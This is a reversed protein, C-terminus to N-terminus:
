YKIRGYDNEILHNLRKPMSDYLSEVIKPEINKAEDKIVKFLEQGNNVCQIRLKADVRKQLIGWLNEIPSLDPSAAPWFMPRIEVEDFFQQM